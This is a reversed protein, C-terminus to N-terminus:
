KWRTWTEVKKQKFNALWGRRIKRWRSKKKSWWSRHRTRRKKDTLVWTAFGATGVTVGVAVAFTTSLAARAVMAATAGAASAISIEAFTQATERPTRRPARSGSTAAAVKVTHARVPRGNRVHSRRKVTPM